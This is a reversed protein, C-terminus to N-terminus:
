QYMGSCKLTCALKGSARGDMYFDLGKKAYLGGLAKIELLIILLTCMPKEAAICLEAFSSGLSCSRSLIIQLEWQDEVWVLIRMRRRARRVGSLFKVSTMSRMRGKVRKITYLLQVKNSQHVQYIILLDKVFVVVISLIPDINNRQV